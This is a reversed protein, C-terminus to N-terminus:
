YSLYERKTAKSGDESVQVSLSRRIVLSKGQVVYELDSCDDLKPMGKLDDKSASEMEGDDKIVIIRKNLCEHACYGLEQFLFFFFM